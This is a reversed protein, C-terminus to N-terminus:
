SRNLFKVILKSKKLTVLMEWLTLEVISYCPQKDPIITGACLLGLQIFKMLSM